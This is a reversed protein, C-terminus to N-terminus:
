QPECSFFVQLGVQKNTWRISKPKSRRVNLFPVLACTLLANSSLPFDPGISTSKEEAVEKM